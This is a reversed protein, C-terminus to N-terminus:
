KVLRLIYPYRYYNGQNASTAATIILIINAIVVLLFLPVGIVIVMLLVAIAAYITFSIQANLAEKAQDAV